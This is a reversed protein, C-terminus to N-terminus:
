PIAVSIGCQSPKDDSNKKKTKCFFASYAAIM